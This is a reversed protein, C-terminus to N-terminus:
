YSSTFHFDPCLWGNGADICAELHRAVQRRREIHCCLARALFLMLSFFLSQKDLNKARASSAAKRLPVAIGPKRAHRPIAVIADNWASLGADRNRGISFAPNDDVSRRIDALL